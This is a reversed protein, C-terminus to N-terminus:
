RLLRVFVKKFLVYMLSALCFNAFSALLTLLAVVLDLWWAFSVFKEFYILFFSIFFCAATFGYVFKLEGPEKQTPVIEKKMMKGSVFSYLQYLINFKMSFVGLFFLLATILVLWENQIFFAILPLFGGIARFFNLSRSDYISCQNM